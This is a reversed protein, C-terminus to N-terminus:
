AAAKRAAALYAGREDPLPHGRPEFVDRALFFGTLRFAADVEAESPARDGDVALLFRPLPLLRDAWPLGAARSVARGSRPSVYVLEERGGTAACELLDLGFGLEALLLLEFRALLAPGVGGDALHQAVVEAAAAVEAHPDREPLMRALAALYTIGYLGSPAAMLASARSVLPELTYNGLHEELRASWAARVRNGLQLMPRMRRSRGGRVIGLHRGHADTLLEAIISTEGHARLGVVLAEDIWHM